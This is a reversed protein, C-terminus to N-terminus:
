RQLMKEVFKKQHKLNRDSNAVKKSGTELEHMLQYAYRFRCINMGEEEARKHIYKLLEPVKSPISKPYQMAFYGEFDDAINQVGIRKCLEIWEDIQEKTDNVFPLLIYKLEFVSNTNKAAEAYKKCNEVVRDFADVRKIKRYLESNGSDPSIVVEGVGAKLVKEIAPLYTIGSSPIFIKKAGKELLFDIIEEFDDLVGVEGGVFRVIGDYRLVSAEEMDKLMKIMSYPEVSNYRDKDLASYCYYCNSNCKTWHSITIENIYCGDQWDDRNMLMCCNECARFPIKGKKAREQLRNKQAVVKKWNVKRGDYYFYFCPSRDLDCNCCHLLSDFGLFVSKQLQECFKYYM